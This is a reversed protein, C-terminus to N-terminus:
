TRQGPGSVVGLGDGAGADQFFDTGGPADRILAIDSDSDGCGVLLRGFALEGLGLFLGVLGQVLDLIDDLLGDCM